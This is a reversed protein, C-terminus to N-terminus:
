KGEDISKAVADRQQRAHHLRVAFMGLCVAIVSFAILM